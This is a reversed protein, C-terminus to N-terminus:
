VKQERTAGMYPMTKCCGAGQKTAQIKMGSSTDCSIFSAKLKPMSDRLSESPTGLSLHHSVPAIM